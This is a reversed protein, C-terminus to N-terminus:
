FAGDEGVLSRAGEDRRSQSKFRSVIADLNM